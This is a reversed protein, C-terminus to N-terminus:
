DPTGGTPLFADAYAELVRSFPAGRRWPLIFPESSLIGDLYRSQDPPFLVHLEHGREEVESEHLILVLDLPSREHAEQLLIVEDATTAMAAGPPWILVAQRCAGALRLFKQRLTEDERDPEEELIVPRIGEAQLLHAFDHRLENIPKGDRSHKPALLLVNM